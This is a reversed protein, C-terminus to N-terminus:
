ILTLMVAARKGGRHLRALHDSDAQQGEQQRMLRLHPM